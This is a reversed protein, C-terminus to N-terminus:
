VGPYKHNHRERWISFGVLGIGVVYLATLVVNVPWRLNGVASWAVFALIQVLGITILLMWFAQKHGKILNAWIVYFTLLSLAAACSNYLIALTNTMAIVEAGLGAIESKDFVMVLIPADNQLFIISGLIMAGLFLNLGSWISLIISGAKLMKM